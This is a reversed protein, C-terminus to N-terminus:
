IYRLADVIERRSAKIAPLLTALMAIILVSIVSTICIIPVYEVRLPFGRSSGPPPPMLIELSTIYYALGYGILIAVLGSLVALVISEALFQKVIAIRRTGMARLTGIETTREMVTVMMTNTIGFLVIIVLLITIFLFFGDYLEVVKHYFNALEHWLKWEIPLNYDEALKSFSSIFHPMNETDDLLVVIKDVDPTNLLFQAHQLGMLMARDDYEKAFSRFIGDVRVDVANMVGDVTTAVLTLYDGVNANVSAALGEGLLAGDTDDDFLENGDIITLASSIMSEQEPEVGRIIAAESFSENGILGTFELRQATLLVEPIESLSNNVQDVLEPPMRYQGPHQRHMEEYGAKHIQVHGYQGRIVSERLGDYNAEIYGGFLIVGVVGTVITMATVLSRRQHRLINRWAVKIFFM